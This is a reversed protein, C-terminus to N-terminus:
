KGKKKNGSKGKGDQKGHDDEDPGEHDEHDEDDHEDDDHRDGDAEGRREKKNMKKEHKGHGKDKGHGKGKGHLKHEEHIAAALEKGRLGEDLRAQVFAGFNDVPGSEEVAATSESLVEETEEPTLGRHRAGELVEKVEEEPIGATRAEQSAQILEAARQARELLTPERTPEAEDQALALTPTALILVMSFLLLFKM